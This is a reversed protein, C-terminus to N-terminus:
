FLNKLLSTVHWTFSMSQVSVYKCVRNVIGLKYGLQNVGDHKITLLTNSLLDDITCEVNDSLLAALFCCFYKFLSHVVDPRSRM